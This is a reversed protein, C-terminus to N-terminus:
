RRFFAVFFFFLCFIFSKRHRFESRIIMSTVTCYCGGTHFTGLSQGDNRLPDIQFNVDRRRQRQQEPRQQPRRHGISQEHLRDRGGRRYVIFFLTLKPPFLCHIAVTPSRSAVASCYSDPYYFSRRVSGFAVEPKEDKTTENRGNGREGRIRRPVFLFTRAMTFLTVVPTNRFVSLCPPSLRAEDSTKAENEKAKPEEFNRPISIRRGSGRLSCTAAVRSHTDRAVTRARMWACCTFDNDGDM